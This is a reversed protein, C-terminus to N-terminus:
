IQEEVRTHVQIDLESNALLSAFDGDRKLKQVTVLGLQQFKVDEHKLFFLLYKSMTLYHPRLLQISTETMEFKSIIAACNYSLKSRKTQESLKVLRSVQEPTITTCLATRFLNWTMLHLLCSTVHVLTEDSLSPSTLAQLLGSLCQSEMLAQEDMGSGCLDLIIKCSHTIIVSTLRPNLLLQGIEGLLGENVLIDNNPPHASLTSLLTLASEIWVPASTRLLARLPQVSNLEMLQEQILVSKLLTHLCRCAQASNKLVSSSMLTLLSKALYHGGISLLKPHHEQLAAINCLATCSYFQVESDSSQLLLVLVPIAGAECLIRTSWDSQTLHLLAWTANQQVKSDYSKALALLPKVGDALFVDRNSESTALLAVCACSHCQAAPDGSQFLELIPVLMGMEIVLEKCVNNKVLLNVLALSITKQVDLDSSLLLGMVPEMFPPPVPSTLCHSIQLYSMAACMQLDAKQSAALRNLAQLNGQSLIPLEDDCILPLSSLDHATRREPTLCTCQVIQRFVDRIKHVLEKWHIRLRAGFERLLRSCKDCFGSAM